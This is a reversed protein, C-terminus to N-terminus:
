DLALGIAMLTAAVALAGMGAKLLRAKRLLVTRLTEAMAIQTDLLHLRTFDRESSLYKERLTRLNTAWYGRPWFAALAAGGSAAAILRCIVILVSDSTALPVLVAAFGLVVGAKADLADFHRLQGERESHVEEAILDLSPLRHTAM